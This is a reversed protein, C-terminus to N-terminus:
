TGSSKFISAVIDRVERSHWYDMHGTDCAHHIPGRYLARSWYDRRGQVVTVPQTKQFGGYRMLVPGLAVVTLKLQDPRALLPWASALMQLGCSGTIIGLSKETGNIVLQLGRAVSRNWAPWCVSWLFQLTNRISAAPLAPRPGPLDMVPLFPFGTLLPEADPPAVARLLEIQSEM